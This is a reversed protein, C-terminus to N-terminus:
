EEFDVEGSKDGHGTEERDNIELGGLVLIASEMGFPTIRIFGGRSVSSSLCPSNKEVASGRM